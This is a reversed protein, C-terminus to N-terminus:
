PGPTEPTRRCTALLLGGCVTLAILIWLGGWIVTPIHTMEALM